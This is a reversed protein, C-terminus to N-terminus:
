STKKKFFRTLKSFFSTSSIHSNKMETSNFTDNGCAKVDFNQYHSYLSSIADEKKLDSWNEIEENNVYKYHEMFENRFRYFVWKWYKSEVADEALINWSSFYEDVTRYDQMRYTKGKFTFTHKKIKIELNCDNTAFKNSGGHRWGHIGIPRHFSSCYHEHSASSLLCLESCFPCLYECRLLNDSILIYNLNKSLVLTIWVKWDEKKILDQIFKSFHVHFEERTSIPNDFVFLIDFSSLPTNNVLEKVSEYYKEILEKVPIEKEMSLGALCEKLCTCYNQSLSEVKPLLITSLIKDIVTDRSCYTLLKTKIRNRLFSIPDSIYRIYDDFNEENTLEELVQIQLSSRKTFIDGHDSDDRFLLIIEEHIFTDLLSKMGEFMISSLKSSRSFEVGKCYSMFIPELEAKIKALEANISNNKRFEDHINRLNPIVRCCQHFSFALIFIPNLIIRRYAQQEERKNFSDIQNVVIRVLKELYGINYPHSQNLSQIYETVNDSTTTIFHNIKQRNADDKQVKNTSPSSELYDIIQKPIIRKIAKYVKRFYENSQYHVSYDVEWLDFPTTGYGEYGNPQVSLVLERDELSLELSALCDISSITEKLDVLIDITFTKYEGEEIGSSWEAWQREFLSCFQLQNDTNQSLSDELIKFIEDKANRLIQDKQQNYMTRVNLTHKTYTYFIDLDQCIEFKKKDRTYSFHNSANSEWKMFIEKDKHHLFLTSMITNQENKLLKLSSEHIETDSLKFNNDINEATSTAIGDKVRNQCKLMEISFNSSWNALKEDMEFAANRERVNQYNFVFNEKLLSSWIQELKRTWENITLFSSMQSSYDYIIKSKLFEAKNSYEISVVSMPPSSQFLTPFYETDKDPNYEIVDKFSNYKDSCNEVKAVCRTMEDLLEFFKQKGYSLNQKASIDAVNQHVFICRPKSYSLQMRILALVAIQLIDQFQSQDEGFLNIITLDCLGVVFTALENDHTLSVDTDLEPARLGETDLVVLYSYGLETTLTPDIAILQMFVGRTCRGSSVPFQLGFMTNLLTSKGSSQIGIISVVFIKQKDKGVLLSLQYLVATVTKLPISNAYGDLIEFSHGHLLLMAFVWPIRDPDLQMKSLIDERSETLRANMCTEYVQCLERSIHELGLSNNDVENSTPRQTSNCKTVDDSYVLSSYELCLNDLLIQLVRWFYLIQQFDSQCVSIIKFLEILLKSPNQLLNYQQSMAFKVNERLAKQKFEISTEGTDNKIRHSDKHSQSLLKWNELQLPLLSEKIKALMNSSMEQFHFEELIIENISNKFILANRILPEDEDVSIGHKLAIKQCESISLRPTDCPTGLIATIGTQIMKAYEVINGSTKIIHDKYQRLNPLKKFEAFKEKRNQNGMFVFCIKSGFNLMIEKLKAFQNDELETLTIFVYVIASADLLYSLQQEFILADGRLNLVLIPLDTFETIKHSHRPLYWNIEITGNLFVKEQCFGDSERNLFSDGTLGLVKNLISSKHSESCRGIRIFSIFSLKESIVPFLKPNGTKTNYGKLLTHFAFSFYVPKSVRPDIVVLPLSLQCKTAQSLFIQRFLPDSRLFIYLFIDMPNVQLQNTIDEDGWNDDEDDQTTCDKSNLASDITRSKSDLLMIRNLMIKALKVVTIDDAESDTNVKTISMVDKFTFPPLNWDYADLNNCMLLTYALSM